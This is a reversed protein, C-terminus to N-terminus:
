KVIVKNGEIAVVEIEAGAEIFAGQSKGEVEQDAIRVKGMPALRSVCIGKDGVNINLGSTLDVKATIDTDLAMKDLTKGKLFAYIATACLLLVAALTVYGTTPSMRLFAFVVAAILCTFGSIGAIGFGPLLFLEAVLLGVGAVVLLILLMTNM